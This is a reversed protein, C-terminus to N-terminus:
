FLTSVEYAHSIKAFTAAAEEGPNKDSPSSYAPTIPTVHLSSQRKLGKKGWLAGPHYKLSLKRFARKIKNQPADQDVGLVTCSPTSSTLLVRTSERLLVRKGVILPGMGSYLDEDDECIVPHVWLCLSVVVLAVLKSLRM